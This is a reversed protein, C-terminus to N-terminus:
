DLECRNKLHLLPHPLSWAYIASYSILRSTWDIPCNMSSSSRLQEIFTRGWVNRTYCPRRVIQRSGPLVSLPHSVPAELIVFPYLRGAHTVTSNKTSNWGLVALNMSAMDDVGDARYVRFLEFLFLSFLECRTVPRTQFDSGLILDSVDNTTKDEHLGWKRFKWYAKGDM